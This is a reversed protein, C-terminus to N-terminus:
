QLIYKNVIKFAWFDSFLKSEELDGDSFEATIHKFWKNKKVELIYNLLDKNEEISLNWTIIWIDISNADKNEFYNVFWKLIEGEIVWFYKISGSQNSLRAVVHKYFKDEDTCYFKKWLFENTRKYYESLYQCIQQAHIAGLQTIM